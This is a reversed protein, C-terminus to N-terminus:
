EVERGQPSQRYEGRVRTLSDEVTYMKFKVVLITVSILHM